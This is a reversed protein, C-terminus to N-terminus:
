TNTRMRSNSNRERSSGLRKLGLAGAMARRGESAASVEFGEDGLGERLGDRLAPDDEVLLVRPKM